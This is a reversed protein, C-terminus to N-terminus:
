SAPFVESQVVMPSSCDIGGDKIAEDDDDDDDDDDDHEGHAHTSFDEGGADVEGTSVSGVSDSGM